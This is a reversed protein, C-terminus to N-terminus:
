DEITPNALKLLLKFLEVPTQPDINKGRSYPIASLSRTDVALLDSIFEQLQEVTRVEYERSKTLARVLQSHPM